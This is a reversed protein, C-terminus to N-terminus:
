GERAALEAAMAAGTRRAQRAVPGAYQEIMQLPSLEGVLLTRCTTRMVECRLWITKVISVYVSVLLGVWLPFLIGVPQMAEAAEIASRNLWLLALGVGILVLIWHLLVAVVLSVTPLSSELDIRGFSAAAAVFRMERVRYRVYFIAPVILAALPLHTLPSGPEPGALVSRGPSEKEESIRVGM